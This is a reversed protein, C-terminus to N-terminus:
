REYEKPRREFLHKWSALLKSSWNSTRSSSTPICAIQAPILLEVETGAAPRSFLKLQAGIRKARERMGSLGWHGHRGFRLIKSDFGIGDDRILVRLKHSDYELEVEINKAQAHRFANILAERGISYIDNRIIPHLLRPQGEVTVHFGIADKDPYENAFERSIQTFAEALDLSESPSGRLGGVANRGEDVVRGMLGLIREVAPKASSEPPLQDAVVHLQMSASIVGQLLTDHLEQAIRTREALRDEFRLKLQGALKVLRLRSFAMLALGVILLICLRFWTTQWLTAEIEFPVAAETSNWAGESNSAIVRFVYHGPDLNTYTAERESTPESWHQDFDELRYKFSVRTPVALSLGTYTLTIRHHPASIRTDPVMEIKRNDAYLENVHVLAPALNFNASAPDVFSLGRNTSFWIRGFADATVSKQRKVGQSSLLGDATSYERVDSAVLPQRVLKEREVRLIHSATSIWLSGTHDEEIGYIAERLSDPVDALSQVIGSRIFALGNDTGVWLTGTSDQLLCNVNGPPIGDQATYLRWRGQMLSSLGNPTGFWLTGDASEAISSVTNSGLGDKTTYTTFANNKFQSIGASLTGAWMSRDRGQHVAYVSNQALGDAQTYTKASFSSNAYRLRTLGERRGIWLEGKSGDISYLVDRNLGAEQVREVHGDKLWYLGGDTPSFWIRGESDAYIPGNNDSPLGNSSSYTTFVSDRLREIGSSTGIWFNGERDEFLATVAKAPRKQHADLSSVGNANVRFLGESTGVWVNSDRDRAIALVQMGSLLTVTSTISSDASNLRVMGNDTGVWLDGDNTALLCNIKKDPLKTLLGFVGEHELSFIGQERTGLWIRGDPMQTLSITLRPLLERTTLAQFGGAERVVGNTLGSLLLHGDKGLTMATIEAEQERVNLSVDQFQGDRYRVLRSGNLRIWLNGNVDVTLGLVPGFPIKSPESIMVLVFNIGDFRVLGKDTGIWLYGDPTQAFANVAGGPFGQDTGWHDFIYQSLAKNPSLATSLSACCLFALIALLCRSRRWDNRSLNLFTSSNISWLKRKM